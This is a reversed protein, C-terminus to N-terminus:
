DYHNTVEVVLVIKTCQKIKEFDKEKGLSKNEENLPEVILRFGLKKGLDIAYTGKRNATLGHFRFSPNNIIDTFCVSQEIYNISAFLKEAVKVNFEKKAYAYDTCQKKVTANKYTIEM